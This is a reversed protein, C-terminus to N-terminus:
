MVSLESFRKDRASFRVPKRFPVIRNNGDFFKGLFIIDIHRYALRYIVNNVASRINVACNRLQEGSTLFFFEIDSITQGGEARRISQPLSSFRNVTVFFKCNVEQM